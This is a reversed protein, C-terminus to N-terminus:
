VAGLMVLIAVAICFLALIYMIWKFINVLLSALKGLIFFIVAYVVANVVVDLRTPSEKIRSTISGLFGRFADVLGNFIDIAKSRNTFWSYLANGSSVTTSTSTVTTTYISTNSTATGTSNSGIITLGLRPGLVVISVAAALILLLSLALITSKKM